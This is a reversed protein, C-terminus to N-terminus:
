TIENTGNLLTAVTIADAGVNFRALRKPSSSSLCAGALDMMCMIHMAYTCTDYYYEHKGTDDLPVLIYKITMDSIYQQINTSAQISLAQIEALDQSTKLTTDVVAAISTAIPREIDIGLFEGFLQDNNVDNRMGLLFDYSHQQAVDAAEKHYRYHLALEPHISDKNIGGTAPQDQSGDIIGGHSCKGNPKVIVDNDTYQAGLSYGSTLLKQSKLSSDLNDECEYLSTSEVLNVLLNIISLGGVYVPRLTRDKIIGRKRCDTCPNALEAVNEIMKDTEGLVHYPTITDVEGIWNEIWNTHSYFDQLTHLLRGTFKRANNHEDSQILSSANRRFDILRNQGAEFQESDFHAAAVRLENSDVNGNYKGVDNIYKTLKKKRPRRSWWYENGHYANILGSVDLKKNSNLLKQVDKRASSYNPNPNAIFIEAVTRLIAQRTMDPHTITKSELDVFPLTSLITRTLQGFRFFLANAAERRASSPIFGATIGILCTLLAVVPGVKFLVRKM